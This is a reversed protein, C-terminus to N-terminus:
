MCFTNQCFRAAQILLHNFNSQSYVTRNISNPESQFLHEIWKNGEIIQTSASKTGSCFGQLGLSVERGMLNCSRALRKILKKPSVKKYSYYLGNLLPNVILIHMIIM